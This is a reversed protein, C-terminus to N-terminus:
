EYVLEKNSRVKKLNSKYGTTVVKNLIWGMFRNDLSKLYDVKDKKPENISQGVEFVGLTKDAFLLWEKSKGMADLSAAEIIIIDHNNALHGLKEQITREDTLEFLSTEQGKNGLVNIKESFKLEDELHNDRLYDEVFLKSQVTQTIFPDNFNGDILLTRKNTMAYAYALSVAFFSKGESEKLSTVALIKKGNLERDVEFRISRLLNRFDRIEPSPSPDDWIRKFDVMSGSLLNLQGLVQTMTKNALEKSAHISDDLYFLIFLVVLCFVFSIIGSLIVLLMKKSAQASAPMAIEIQRIKLSFNSALNIQNYRALIELYEKSNVDIANEYSQIVAEHPVLRDFKSNLRALEKNISNVSNKALDLSVEMNLKQTVLDQKAVLPNFIHKDTSQNIQHTLVNRLSDISKKYHEDFGSQVYMENLSRLQDKTNLIAGNINTMSGELYKRDQPRFKEDISKIAAQYAIIDKEVTERRSEYDALQGYLNKAQENLNLVRNQIKYSKLETMKAEMSDQKEKLLRAFFDVAKHENNRVQSSYYAIFENSLTNAVFASLEPNESEFTVDIFDSNNVRYVSIKSNLSLDDYKMSKLVENLGKEDKNWMSLETLNQAHQKFIEVAHKKADATLWTLQKSPTRFPKKETLDHLILRYSVQDIIKKLGMMQVLNSFEQNIKSEQANNGNDLFDQSQDVLGTAIRAKSVYNDPLNRVLFYTIIVTIAPILILVLKRRKLLNLFKSLQM